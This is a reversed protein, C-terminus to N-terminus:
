RMAAPGQLYQLILGIENPSFPRVNMRELNREMRMVVAPWDQPGHMRPDPLAHCRSCATAFEGRGAGAPLTAGSVQLAHDNLYRLLELRDGIEAARFPQDAPLREVRLWMRRVVGPWDAAGHMTPSPLPHCQGCFQATLAAGRANPDPLDAPALGEPPLAVHLTALLLQDRTSPPAPASATDGAGAGIGLKAPPGASRCTLSALAVAALLLRPLQSPRM